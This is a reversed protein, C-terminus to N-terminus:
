ILQNTKVTKSINQLAPYNNRATNIEAENIFKTLM